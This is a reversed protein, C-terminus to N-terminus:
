TAVIGGAGSGGMEGRWAAKAVHLRPDGGGKRGDGEGWLRVGHRDRLEERRKGKSQVPM